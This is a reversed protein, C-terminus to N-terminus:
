VVATWFRCCMSVAYKQMNKLPGTLMNIRLIKCNRLLPIWILLQHIAGVQVEIALPHVDCFIRIKMTVKQLVDFRVEVASGGEGADCRLVV